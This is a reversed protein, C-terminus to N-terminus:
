SEPAVPVSREREHPCQGYISKAVNCNYCLLQFRDKPYGLRRLYRYFGAGAKIRQLKLERRHAAGDGNVHDIALFEPRLEGCCGCKGGYAALTVARLRAHYNRRVENVRAPNELRYQKAYVRATEHCAVCQSSGPVAPESCTGCVGAARKRAYWAKM